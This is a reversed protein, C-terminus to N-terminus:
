IEDVAAFFTDWAPCSCRVKVSNSVVQLWSESGRRPMTSATRSNAGFSNTLPSASTVGVRAYVHASIQQLHVQDM